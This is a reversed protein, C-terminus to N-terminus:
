AAGACFLTLVGHDKPVDTDAAGTGFRLKQVGRIEQVAVGHRFQYDTDQTVTRTRQAWAVGVAQAGCLYAPVVLAGATGVAGVAAIEPVEKIVVGDWVLDGGSFLPNDQGRGWAERNAQMMGTTAKLDRFANGHCFLVLWEEDDKVTVPRIAPSAALAMRKARSVMDPTLTDTAAIAALSAAHDGATYHAPTAYLLRDANNTNWTNKQTATAASYAVGDVSGLAAVIDDRLHKMAWTKLRTKAANRLDMPGAQEELETLVVAHRLADVSIPHSRLGLAEEFGELVASGTTPANNLENVLGFVITDGKKKTLNQKTHIVANESPGMYKNFRSARIYDSFFQDDWQKVRLATPITTATM